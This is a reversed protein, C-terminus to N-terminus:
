RSQGLDLNVYPIRLLSYKEIISLWARPFNRRRHTTEKQSDELPKYARGYVDEWIGLGQWARGTRVSHILKPAAVLVCVAAVVTWVITFAVQYPPDSVYSSGFINLMDRMADNLSSLSM